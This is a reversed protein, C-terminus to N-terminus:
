KMNIECVFCYQSNGTVDHFRYGHSKWLNLRIDSAGNGPQSTGWQIFTIKSGDDYRWVGQGDKSGQVYTDVINKAALENKVFTWMANSDIRVLAANDAQCATSSEFHSKATDYAKICRDLNADYRYGDTLSCLNQGKHYFRWGNESSVSYVAAMRSSYMICVKGDKHFFVSECNETQLCHRACKILNVPKLSKLPVANSIKNDFNGDRQLQIYIASQNPAGATTSRASFMFLVVNLFLALVFDM